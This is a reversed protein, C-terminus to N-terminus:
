FRAMSENFTLKYLRELFDTSSNFRECLPVTARCIATVLCLFVSFCRLFYSFSILPCTAAFTYENRREARTLLFFFFRVNRRARTSLPGCARSLSRAHGGTHTELRALLSLSACGRVFFIRSTRENANTVASVLTSSGEWLIAIYRAVDSKM